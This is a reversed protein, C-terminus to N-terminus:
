HRTVDFRSRSGTKPKSSMAEGTSVAAGCAEAQNDTLGDCDNDLGDSCTADGVPGESAGPHVAGREDECDSGAVVPLVVLADGYGDDDVDRMCNLPAEIEAAGPFTLAAVVSADDCDTGATVGAPPTLDGFGDGDADRMCAASFPEAFAVGPFTRDDAGDCDGGGAIAPQDGQVDSWGDCVVFGDGDTDTEDSPVTGDCSNDNGDCREEAGPYTGPDGDDCDNVCSAGDGDLDFVDLTTPNCDNDKGDGCVEAVGPSVSADDDDCDVPGHCTSYGDGDGDDDEDVSGDCNNDVGDCVEQALPHIAPDADDCDGACSSFTDSDLDSLNRDPDADDCDEDCTAGDGDADFVDPTGADCDNDVGDDCAETRGPNIAGDADDCDGDCVTYGDADADALNLSPDHDDCDVDCTAGDGDGDFLDPTDPDCDNDLGDDCREAMGPHIRDDADDCDGRCVAYGDGDADFGEDVEADCDNDLRDCVEEAGPHVAAAADDCDGCTLGTADCGPIADCDAYGDADADPCADAPGQCGGDDADLMGDCDNDVEDACVPDGEPGEFTGPHVDARDDSCDRGAVVPLVASADGYGDGDADEMCNLPGDLEAVGVYATASADDCDTGATVGPAPAVDGYDDGDADTMCALAHVERPAAGPHTNPDTADCDGGGLIESGAASGPDWSLCAVYRDGDTDTEDVPIAGSCANDRGDCRESAGPHIAASADDCDTGAVVPLKAAADGFGDDDLDRMCNLVADLEAAGPFTERADDDCDTGARVGAPPAVDGFGDGDHDQMCAAAQPESAAAGPYTRVDSENCDGGGLIVPDDGQSDDWSACAVFRDGDVDLEDAPVEAACANSNGDCLEPAGPYTDPDADDCDDATASEHQEADCSGDGAEVVTGEVTGFGDGDADEFCTTADSGNCDQDIDDGPADPAEPFITEDTDDCDTDFASEGPDTCDGDDVLFSVATGFGDGDRDEYCTVTDHGSCDQDVGDDAVEEAGEFRTDDADDCDTGAVVPLVAEADGFGDADGDKMCNSAGDREASGPFTVASADDCDTGVIVGEPPALDGFDDGDADRMCAAPDAEAAAAGPFTKPDSPDCDGGALIRFDDGQTDSWGVCAVYRDLDADSEDDPVVGACANDNGDCREPAGPYSHEDADDCDTGKAVPLKASAKGYGDGDDDTMCAAADDAPAAGPFTTGSDDNCDTGPTVGDRPSDDGYGDEDRDQMCAQAKEERPAAGPFTFKDSNNCDGGGVIDPFEGDPDQWGECPVYGDEDLDSEGSPVKGACANDRGDCLEAAGPYSRPDDDDCDKPTEEDGCAYFGDGDRDPSDDDLGNCNDDVANCRVEKAGTFIAPDLPACDTVDPDGDNDDDDDRLNRGHEDRDDDSDALTVAYVRNRVVSSLFLEDFGDGNFDGTAASFGVEEGRDSERDGGFILLDIGSVGACDSNGACKNLDVPSSLSTDDFVVYATGRDIENVKVGSGDERRATVVFEDEGSADLDGFAVDFGLQDGSRRAVFVRDAAAPSPDPGGQELIGPNWLYVKGCRIRRSPGVNSREDGAGDDEGDPDPPQNGAYAAGVALAGSKSVAVSFGLYDGDKEGAIPYVQRSTKESYVGDEHAGGTESLPGQILIVKGGESGVAGIVLDDANGFPQAEADFDLDLDGVALAEGVGEGTAGQFEISTTPGADVIRDQVRFAFVRGAGELAARAGVIVDEGNGTGELVRGLAVSYGFEDGAEGGPSRFGQGIEAPDVIVPSPPTSPKVCLSGPPLYFVTGPLETPSGVRGPAGVVLAAASGGSPCADAIRERGVAVSFGFSAPRGAVAPVRLIVDAQAEASVMRDALDAPDLGYAASADTRGFFIYARNGAPDGVVLDVLDDGDLHGTALAFGFQGAAGVLEFRLDGAQCEDRPQGPETESQECLSFSTPDSGGLVDARVAVAGAVLLALAALWPGITRTRRSISTTQM